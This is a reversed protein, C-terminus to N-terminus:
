VHRWCVFARYKLRMERREVGGERWLGLRRAESRETFASAGGGRLWFAGKLSKGGRGRDGTVKNSLAERKM